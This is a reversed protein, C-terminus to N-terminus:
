WEVSRSLNSRSARPLRATRRNARVLTVRRRWPVDASWYAYSATRRSPTFTQVDADAPGRVRTGTCVDFQSGHRPCTLVTAELEGSSLVAGAHPCVDGSRTCSGSYHFLAVPGVPHKPRGCYLGIRPPYSARKSSLFASDGPCRRAASFDSCSSHRSRAGTRSWTAVRGSPHLGSTAAPCGWTARLSRTRTASGGGSSRTSHDRSTSISSSSTRISRSPSARRSSACVADGAVRGLRDTVLSGLHAAPRRARTSALDADLHRLGRGHRPLVRRRRAARPRRHLRGQRVRLSGDDDPLSLPACRPRPAMELLETPSAVKHSDALQKIMRTGMGGM